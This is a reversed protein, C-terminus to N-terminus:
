KKDVRHKEEYIKMNIQAHYMGLVYAFYYGPKGDLFGLKLVYSYLFMIAGRFPLVDGLKQQISRMFSMTAQDKHRLKGKLRLQSEWDSYKNLKEFFHFLGDHDDHSMHKKLIDTKGEIQPQYHGEVEWMNMIDLDDYDLFKGLKKKFLVLKYVKHGHNLPRGLFVYNFGVFYGTSHNESAIEDRIENSLEVGVEEDADVYLVWDHSFSLNELCWQKKKPYKGNWNFDVVKAGMSTAMECTSDDSNSDVVFVEAFQEVSRLCKEINREENKTMIIVSVPIKM